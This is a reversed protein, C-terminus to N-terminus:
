KLRREDLQPGGHEKDLMHSPVWFATAEGGTWAAPEAVTAWLEADRDPILRQELNDGQGSDDHHQQGALMAPAAARIHAIASAEDM